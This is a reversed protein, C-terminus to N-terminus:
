LALVSSFLFVPFFLFVFVFVSSNLFSLISKPIFSLITTDHIDCIFLSQFVLVLSIEGCLTFSFCMQRELVYGLHKTKKNYIFSCYIHYSTRLDGGGIEDTDRRHQCRPSRTPYWNVHKDKTRKRGM